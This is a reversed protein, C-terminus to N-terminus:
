GLGLVAFLEGPAGKWHLAWGRRQPGGCEPVGGVQGSCGPCPSSLSPSGRHGLGSIHILAALGLGAQEVPGRAGQLFSLLPKNGWM